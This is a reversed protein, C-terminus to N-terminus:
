RKRRVVKRKVVKKRPRSPTATIGRSTQPPSERRTDHGSTDSPHRQWHFCTARPCKLITKGGGDSSEVLFLSGCEPCVLHYPKGWSIFTCETDSCVYYRKGTSTEQTKIRGTRCIPCQMALDEEFAAIKKGVIDEDRELKPLSGTEERIKEDSVEERAEVPEEEEGESVPPEEREPPSSEDEHEPPLDNQIEGSSVSVSGEDSPIEPVIDFSLPENDATDAYGTLPEGKGEEGHVVGITESPTKEQVESLRAEATPMEAPQIGAAGQQIEQHEAPSPAITEPRSAPTKGRVPAPKQYAAIFDSGKIVKSRTPRRIETLSALIERQMPKQRGTRLPAPAEKQKPPVQKKKLPVGHMQLTQDFHDEATALPKRGSKVEEMAQALYAVLNIGPMTPFIHDLIQAMRVTHEKISIGSEPHIKLYGRGIMAPIATNMIKDADLCMETLEDCLMARTYQESRTIGGKENKVQEALLILCAIADITIPLGEIGYRAGLLRQVHRGLITDFHRQISEEASGNEQINTGM